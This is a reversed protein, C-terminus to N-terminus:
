SAELATFERQIQKRLNEAEDPNYLGTLSTRQKLTKRLKKLIVKNMNENMAFESPKYGYILKERNMLFADEDVGENLNSLRKEYLKILGKDTM